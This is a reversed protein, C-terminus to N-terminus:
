LGAGAVAKLPQSKQQQEERWVDYANFYCSMTCFCWTENQYYAFNWHTSLMRQCWACTM